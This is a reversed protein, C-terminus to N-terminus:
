RAPESARVRDALRESRNSARGRGAPGGAARRDFDHALPLRIGHVGLGLVVRSSGRAARAPHMSVTGSTAVQDVRIQSAPKNRTALAIYMDRDTVVGTLKGADVIPLIGCDAEWLLQAAAALTTSPAPTKVKTTMIDQVKM